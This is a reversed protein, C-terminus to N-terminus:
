HGHRFLEREFIARNIGQLSRGAIHLCVPDAPLDVAPDCVAHLHPALFQVVVGQRQAAMNLATMEYAFETRYNPSSGLRDAEAFMALHRENAIWLGSYFYRAQDLDNKTCDRQVAATPDHKSAFFAERDDYSEIAPWPRLFRVDADFFLVTQRYREVLRLKYMAPSRVDDPVETLVHVDLGTAEAASDAALRAMRAHAKGVGITAAIM